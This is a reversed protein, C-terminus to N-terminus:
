RNSAQGTYDSNPKPMRTAFSTSHSNPGAYLQCAEAINATLTFIILVAIGVPFRGVVRLEGRLSAQGNDGVAHASVLAALFGAADRDLDDFDDVGVGSGAVRAGPEQLTKLDSVMANLLVGFLVGIEVAHPSGTRCHGQEIVQEIKGVYTVAAQIQYTTGVDGAESLIVGVDAAQNLVADEAGLLGFRM